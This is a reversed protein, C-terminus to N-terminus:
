KGGNGGKTFKIHLETDTSPELINPEYDLFDNLLSNITHGSKHFEGQENQLGYLEKMTFEDTPDAVLKKCVLAINPCRIELTAGPKLIRDVERKFTEYERFTLHEIAHSTYIADISENDFPLPKSIDAVIDADAYLDVSVHGEVRVTGAGLNLKM